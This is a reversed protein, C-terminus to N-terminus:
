PAAILWAAFAPPPMLVGAAATARPLTDTPDGGAKVIVNWTGHMAAAVLALVIAITILQASRPWQPSSESTRRGRPSKSTTTLAAPGPAPLGRPQQGVRQPQGLRRDVSHRCPHLNM